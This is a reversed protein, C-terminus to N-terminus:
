FDKPTLATGNPSNKRHEGIDMVVVIMWYLGVCRGDIYSNAFVYCKIDM